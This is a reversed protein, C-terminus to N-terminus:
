VPPLPKYAYSGSGAECNFVLECGWGGSGSRRRQLNLGSRSSVIPKEGAERIRTKDELVIIPICGSGANKGKYNLRVAAEGSDAIEVLERWGPGEKDRCGVIQNRKCGQSNKEESEIIEPQVSLGGEGKGGRSHVPKPKPGWHDSKNWTFSFSLDQHRRTGTKNAQEKSETNEPQVSWGGGGGGRSHVPEGKPGWNHYTM